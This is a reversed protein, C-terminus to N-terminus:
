MGLAVVILYGVFLHAVLHGGWSMMETWEEHVIVQFVYIVLLYVYWVVYAIWGVLFLLSLLPGYPVLVSLAVPIALPFGARLFRRNWGQSGKDAGSWVSSYVNWVLFVLVSLTDSM